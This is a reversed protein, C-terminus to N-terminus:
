LFRGMHEPTPLLCSDRKGFLRYRNRAVLGYVADRLGRPVVRLLAALWRWPGGLDGLLSLAATSRVQAQGDKIYVVTNLDSTSLGYQALLAQGAASQLAAFRIRGAQDHRIVFQVVGTCLNCVGDFLVVM